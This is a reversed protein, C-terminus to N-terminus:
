LADAKAEMRGFRAEVHKYLAVTISKSGTELNPQRLDRAVTSSSVTAEAPDAIATMSALAYSGLLFKMGFNLSRIDPTSSQSVRESEPIKVSSDAPASVLLDSRVSM